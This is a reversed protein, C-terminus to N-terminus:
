KENDNRATNVQNRIRPLIWSPSWQQPRAELLAVMGLIYRMKNLFDFAKWQLYFRKFISCCIFIGPLPVMWGREGQVVTPTNIQTYTWPNVSSWSRKRFLPKGNLQQEGRFTDFICFVQSVTYQSSKKFLRILQFGHYTSLARQLLETIIQTFLRPGVGVVVVFFSIRCSEGNKWTCFLSYCLRKRRKVPEGSSRCLSTNLERLVVVSRFM